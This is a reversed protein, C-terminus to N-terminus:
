KTQQSQTTVETLAKHFTDCFASFFFAHQASVAFVHFPICVDDVVFPYLHHTHHIFLIGIFFFTIFVARITIAMRFFFSFFFIQIGHYIRGKKNNKLYSCNGLFGQRILPKKKYNPLHSLFTSSSLLIYSFPLALRLHHSGSVLLTYKFM